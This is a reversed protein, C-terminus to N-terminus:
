KLPKAVHEITEVILDITDFDEPQLNEPPISVHLKTELLSILKLVSLSDILGSTVLPQEEKISRGTIKSAAERAANRISSSDPLVQGGECNGAIFGKQARSVAFAIERQARSSPVL